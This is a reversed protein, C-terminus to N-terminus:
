NENIQLVLKSMAIDSQKKLGSSNRAEMYAVEKLKFTLFTGNIMRGVVRYYRGTILEPTTSGHTYIHSTMTNNDTDRFTLVYKIKDETVNSLCAFIEFLFSDQHQLKAWHQMASINCTIVRKGGTPKGTKKKNSTPTEYKVAPRKSSVSYQTTAFAQDKTPFNSSRSSPFTTQQPPYSNEKQPPYSNKNEPPYNTGKQPPFSNEQNQFTPPRPQNQLSPPHNQFLSQQPQGANRQDYSNHQGSQQNYSNHQGPNSNHYGNYGGVDGNIPHYRDNHAAAAQGSGVGPEHNAFTPPHNQTHRLYSTPARQLDGAHTPNHSPGHVPYNLSPQNQLPHAPNTTTQNPQFQNPQNYNNTTSPQNVNPNWVPHRYQAGINSTDANYGRNNHPISSSHGPIVHNVSSSHAQGHSPPNNFVQGHTPNTHRLPAGPASHPYYGPTATPVSNYSADPPAYKEHGPATKPASRRKPSSQQFMHLPRQGAM